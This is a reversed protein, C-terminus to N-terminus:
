WGEELARCRAAGLGCGCDNGYDPPFGAIHRAVPRVRCAADDDASAHEWSGDFTREVPKGCSECTDM